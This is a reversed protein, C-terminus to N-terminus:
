LRPLSRQRERIFMFTSQAHLEGRLDVSKKSFSHAWPPETAVGAGKKSGASEARIYAVISWPPELHEHGWDIHRMATNPLLPINSSQRDAAPFSGALFWLNQWFGLPQLERM